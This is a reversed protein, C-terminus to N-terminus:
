QIASRKFIATAAATACRSGSSNSLWVSPGLVALIHTCNVATAGKGLGQFLGSYAELIGMRLDNNYDVSDDDTSQVLLPLPVRVWM